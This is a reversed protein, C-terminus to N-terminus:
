CDDGTTVTNGDQILIFCDAGDEYKTSTCEKSEGKGTCVKITSMTKNVGESDVSANTSAAPGVAVTSFLGLFVISFLSNMNVITQTFFYSVYYVCSCILFDVMRLCKM